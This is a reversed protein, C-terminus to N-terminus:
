SVREQFRIISELYKIILLRKVQNM